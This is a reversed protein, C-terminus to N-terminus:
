DTRAGSNDGANSNGTEGGTGARDFRTEAGGSFRCNCYNRKLTPMRDRPKSCLKRDGPFARATPRPTARPDIYDTKMSQHEELFELDNSVGDGRVACKQRRLNPLARHPSVGLKAALDRQLM